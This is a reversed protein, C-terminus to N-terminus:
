WINERHLEIKETKPNEFLYFYYGKKFTYASPEITNIDAGALYIKKLIKGNFDVIVFRSQNKEMKMEYTQVYIKNDDVMFNKMVPFYEPFYAMQRIKESINRLRIDKKAWEWTKDIFFRTMKQKKYDSEITNLLKGSSDYVNITFGGDQDFSFIKGDYKRIFVLNPLMDVRGSKKYHPYKRSYVNKNEKFENYFFCLGVSNAENENFVSKTVAYNADIPIVQLAIFPYRREKLIEGTKTYLIMKSYSNVLVNSKDVAMQLKFNPLPKLEGPGNGKKCFQKLLRYDKLSYMYVSTDELVYLTEGDVAIQEPRGLNDLEALKEGSLTLALVLLISFIITEKMPVGGEKKRICCTEIEDNKRNARTEPIRTESGEALSVFFWFIRFKTNKNTNYIFVM